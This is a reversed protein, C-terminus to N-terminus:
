KWLSLGRCNNELMDSGAGLPPFRKSMALSPVLPRVVAGRLWPGEGSNVCLSGLGRHHRSALRREMPLFALPHAPQLAQFSPELGVPTPCNMMPLPRSRLQLLAERHHQAFTCCSRRYPADGVGDSAHHVCGAKVNSVSVRSGLWRNDIISFYLCFFVEVSSSCVIGIESGL